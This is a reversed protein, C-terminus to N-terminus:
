VATSCQPTSCIAKKGGGSTWNVVTSGKSYMIKINRGREWACPPGKSSGTLVLWGQDIHCGGYNRNIYFSRDLDSRQHGQLSFHNQTSSQVDTYPSLVLRSKSFWNTHTTFRGDFVLRLEENGEKYLVVHVEQAAFARWNEALALSNKYHSRVGTKPSLVSTLDENLTQSSRYLAQANSVGATIKFILTLGSSVSIKIEYLAGLIKGGNTMDCYVPITKTM